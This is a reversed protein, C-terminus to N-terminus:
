PVQLHILKDKNELFISPAGVLANLADPDGLVMIPYRCKRGQNSMSHRSRRARRSTPGTELYDQFSLFVMLPPKKYGDLNFEMQQSM